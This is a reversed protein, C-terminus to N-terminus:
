HGPTQNVADFIHTLLADATAQIDAAGQGSNSVKISPASGGSTTFASALNSLLSGRFGSSQQAAATLKQVIAQQVQQFRSPDSEQLQALKDALVTFNRSVTSVDQIYDQAQNPKSQAAEPKSAPLTDQRQLLNSSTAHTIM